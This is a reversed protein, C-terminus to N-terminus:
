PHSKIRAMLADSAIIDNLQDAMGEADYTADANALTVFDNGIATGSVKKVLLHRGVATGTFSTTYFGKRNTEETCANDAVVATDSSLTFVSLTVTQNPPALFRIVQTAM